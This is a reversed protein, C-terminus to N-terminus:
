LQVEEEQRVPVDAWWLRQLGDAIKATAEIWERLLVEEALDAGQLCQQLHSRLEDAKEAAYLEHRVQDTM